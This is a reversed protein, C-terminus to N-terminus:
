KRHGSLLLARFWGHRSWYLPPFLFNSGEGAPVYIPKECRWKSSQLQTEIAPLVPLRCLMQNKPIFPVNWRSYNRNPPLCPPSYVDSSLGNHIHTAKLPGALRPSHWYMKHLKNSYNSSPGNNRIYLFSVVFLHTSKPTVLRFGFMRGNFGNGPHYLHKTPM